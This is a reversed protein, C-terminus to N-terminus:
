IVIQYYQTKIQVPHAACRTLERALCKRGHMGEGRGNIFGAKERNARRLGKPRNRQNETNLRSDIPKAHM